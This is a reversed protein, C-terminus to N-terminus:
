LFNVAIIIAIVSTIPIVFSILLARIRIASRNRMMRQDVWDNRSTGREAQPLEQWESELEERLTSGIYYRTMLYAISMVALGLFFFRFLSFIM